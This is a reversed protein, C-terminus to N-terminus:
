TGLDNEIPANSLLGVSAQVQHGIDYLLENHTDASLAIAELCEELGWASSQNTTIAKPRHLIHRLADHVRTEQFGIRRLTKELIWLRALLVDEPLTQVALAVNRSEYSLAYQVLQADVCTQLNVMLEDPLWSRLILHDAQPRLLRKETQLRSTQRLTDKTVSEGHKEIFLQLQAEELQIELEDPSLDHLSAQEGHSREDANAQQVTEAHEVHNLPPDTPTDEGLSVPAKSKSAVSQTAFGRAPNSLAKKKRKNPAM